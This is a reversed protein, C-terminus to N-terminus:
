GTETFIEFNITGTLRNTIKSISLMVLQSIVVNALHFDLGNRYM